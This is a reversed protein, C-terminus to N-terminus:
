SAITVTKSGTESGKANFVTITITVDGAAVTQGSKQKITFTKGSFTVDVNAAQAGSVTFKVNDGSTNLSTIDFTAGAAAQVAAVNVTAPTTDGTTVAKPAYTYITKSTVRDNGKKVEAAAKVLTADTVAIKGGLAIVAPAKDKAREGIETDSVYVFQGQNQLETKTADTLNGGKDVLLIPGATFVGAVLADVMSDGNALYVRDTTRLTRLYQSIYAATEFRDAGGLRIYGQSIQVKAWAEDMAAKTTAANSNAQDLFMQADAQLLAFQRSGDTVGLMATITEPTYLKHSEAGALTGQLENDKGTGNNLDTADKTKFYVKIRKADADFQKKVEAVAQAKSYNVGNVIGKADVMLVDSANTVIAAAGATGYLAKLAAEAKGGAGLGLTTNAAFTSANEQADKIADTITNKHTRVVADIDVKRDAVKEALAKYGMFRGDKPQAPDLADPSVSTGAEGIVTFEPKYTNVGLYLARASNFAKTAAARELDVKGPNVKLAPEMADTLAKDPVVDKGGVGVVKTPKKEKVWTAVAEPLAGAANTYFLPGLDLTGATLADVPVDARSVIISKSKAPEVAIVRKAIEMATAHRDAGGLRATAKDGAVAKLTADSVVTTGGIAYVTKASTYGEIEKKVVDLTRSNDDVLFIPGDTLQGAAAADILATSNAVYVAQAEQKKPFAKDNIAIATDIRDNNARDSAYRDWGGDLPRPEEKAFAPVAASAVLALSAIGVGFKRVTSTSM